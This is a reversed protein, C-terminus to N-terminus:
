NVTVSEYYTRPDLVFIRLHQFSPSLSLAIERLATDLVNIYVFSMYRMSVLQMEQRIIHPCSVLRCCFQRRNVVSSVASITSYTENVDPHCFTERM